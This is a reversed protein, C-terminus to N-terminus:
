ASTGDTVLGLAELADVLSGLAVNGSRSGAVAPRVIPTAGWFGVQQSVPDGLHVLNGFVNWTGNAQGGAITTYGSITVAGDDGITVTSDQLLVGSTGDFRPVTNDVSSAPGGVRGATSVYGVASM